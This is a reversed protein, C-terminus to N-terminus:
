DLLLGKGDEDEDGDPKPTPNPKPLIDKDEKKAYPFLGNNKCIITMM